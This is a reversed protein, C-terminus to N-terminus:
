QGIVLRRWHGVTPNEALRAFDVDAGARQWRDVLTSVSMSTLGLDTLDTDETLETSDVFLVESVDRYFTASQVTRYRWEGTSDVGTRGGDRLSRRLSKGGANRPIESIFEYSTPAQFVAVQGRLARALDRPGITSGPEAVVFAHIREGWRDDPVGIVACDRVNPHATIVKEVDAPYVNEGGVIIVDKARDHVILLDDSDLYGIDGTRIWGDIMTEATAEPNAYYEVMQAPSRLYIEGAVGPEVARGDPDRIELGVGPYPRGAAHLPPDVRRHDRAPLCVATNGTETLGYIQTFDADFEVFARELLARGIPSGGYVIRRVTSLDDPEGPDDLLMRLMSPVLCTTTVREQAITRRIAGPSFSPVVINVIGANLGQLAWWLGGIHAGTLSLLNVDDGRWDIWDLDAAELLRLVATFTRHALVVGKPDGTTGSTYMQAIPTDVGFEVAAPETVARGRWEDFEALDVIRRGHPVRGPDDSVILGPACHDLIRAVESDSLRTNIPVMVAGVLAAGYLTEYLAVSDAAVYAIRDGHRIGVESLAAAVARARAELGSYTVEGRTDRLAVATPRDASHRALYQWM